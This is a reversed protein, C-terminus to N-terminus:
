RTWGGTGDERDVWRIREALHRRLDGSVLEVHRRVLREPLGALRELCFIDTVPLGEVMAAIADAAEECRWM